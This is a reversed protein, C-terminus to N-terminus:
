RSSLPMLGNAFAKSRFITAGQGKDGDSTVVYLDTSGPRIALSTSLLNHGDERGPLLIQGIPIGNPNFVLIRGQGYKAVYHNGDSDARISDPAPGVFHYAVNSGIPAITTADSLVVHHLINRGFETIRLMNNQSDFTIGNAMSLNPVVPIIESFDPTVYYVGGTPETSNGKFDTFYFGGNGDFALDNPMFGKEPSIVPLMNGTGDPNIAFIGGTNTELNIAAIFLRGDEHFALGGPNLDDFTILASLEKNPTLRHVRRATVDCFILNDRDDFIAGELTHGEETVKFYPEAVVTQLSQESQPIPSKSRTQSNYSLGTASQDQQSFLNWPILVPGSLLIIYLFKIKM